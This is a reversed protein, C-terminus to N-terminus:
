KWGTNHRKCLQSCPSCIKLHLVNWIIKTENKLANVFERLVKVVWVRENKAERINIKLYASSIHCCQLQAFLLHNFIARASYRCIVAM